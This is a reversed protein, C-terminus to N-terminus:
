AAGFLFLAMHGSRILKWLAKAKRPTLIDGNKGETLQMERKKGKQEIKNFLDSM